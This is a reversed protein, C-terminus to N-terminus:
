GEFTRLAAAMIEIKSRRPNRSKEENIKRGLPTTYTRLSTREGSLYEEGKKVAAKRNKSLFGICYFGDTYCSTKFKKGHPEVEYSHKKM